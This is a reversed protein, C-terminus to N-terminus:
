EPMLCDYPVLPLVIMPLRRGGFSFPQNINTFHTGSASLHFIHSEIDFWLPLVSSILLLVVCGSSPTGVNFVLPQTTHQRGVASLRVFDVAKTVNSPLGGVQPIERCLVM